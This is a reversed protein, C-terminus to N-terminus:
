LALRRRARQPWCRSPLPLRGRLRRRWRRWQRRRLTVAALGRFARKRANRSAALMM